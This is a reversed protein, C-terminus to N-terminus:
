CLKSLSDVKQPLSQLDSGVFFSGVIAANTKGKLASIHESTSIGFGVATPLKTHRALFDLTPILAPNLEKRAGTVGLTSVVYLFAPKLREIKKLREATTNESVIYVLQINNARAAALFPKIEELPCDAILVSDVQAAKCEAFFHEIGQAHVSNAYCLLGVPINTMTRITRLLSFCKELTIGSELAQEDAHAVVPGDAVPDSFPIGLELMTAGNDLYSQIRALCEQENPAGLVAFPCFGLKNEKKLQSFSNSYRSM